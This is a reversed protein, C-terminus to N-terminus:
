LDGVPFDSSGLFIRYLRLGGELPSRPAIPALTVTLGNALL